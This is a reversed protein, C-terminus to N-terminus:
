RAARDYTSHLLVTRSHVRSTANQFARIFEDYITSTTDSYLYRIPTTSSARPFNESRKERPCHVHAHLQKDHVSLRGRSPMATPRRQRTHRTLVRGHPQTHIVSLTLSKCQCYRYRCITRFRILAPRKPRTARREARLSLSHLM